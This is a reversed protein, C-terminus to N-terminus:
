NPPHLGLHRLQASLNVRQDNLENWEGQMENNLRLLTHNVSKAERILARLVRRRRGSSYQILKSPRRGTTVALLQIPDIRRHKNSKRTNLKGNAFLCGSDLTNQNRDSAESESDSDDSSSSSNSAETSTTPISTLVREEESSSTRSGSSSSSTTRSSHNPSLRAIHEKTDSGTRSSQSSSAGSRPSRLRRMCLIGDPLLATEVESEGDVVGVDEDSVEEGHERVAKHPAATLHGDHQCDLSSSGPSKSSVPNQQQHNFTDTLDIFSSTSTHIRHNIVTHDYVQPASSPHSSVSGNPVVDSPPSCTLPQYQNSTDQHGPGPRDQHAMRLSHRLDWPLHDAIYSATASVAQELSLGQRGHLHALHAALCFEPKSLRNDRDMDALRWIKDFRNPECQVQRLFVAGVEGNTYTGSADVSADHMWLRISSFQMVSSRRQSTPHFLTFLVIGYFEPLVPEARQCIRFDDTPSLASLSTSDETDQRTECYRM